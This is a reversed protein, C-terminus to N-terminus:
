HITIVELLPGNEWNVMANFLKMYSYKQIDKEFIVAEQIVNSDLLFARQTGPLLPSDPTFWKGDKLFAVNCYLTDTVMGNKIILIEEADKRQEYLDNLATRDNYKYSYDITDDHVRQIKTITRFNYPEWKINDIGEGYTLRCKHPANTVFDPIKILKLLDWSDKFGFLETRTKNLRVEHYALNMLRRNQVCITEFCLPLSM